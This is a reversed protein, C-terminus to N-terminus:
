GVFVSVRELVQQAERQFLSIESQPTAQTVGPLPRIQLARPEAKLRALGKALAITLPSDLAAPVEGQVQMTFEAPTSSIVIRTEGLAAARIVSTGQDGDFKPKTLRADPLVAMVEELISQALVVFMPPWPMRKAYAIRKGEAAQLRLAYEREAQRIQELEQQQEVLLRGATRLRELEEDRQGRTMRRETSTQRIRVGRERLIQPLEPPKAMVEQIVQDPPLIASVAVGVALALVEAAGPAQIVSVFDPAVSATNIPVTWITNCPM